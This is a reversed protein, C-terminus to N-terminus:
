KSNYFEVCSEEMDLDVRELIDKVGSERPFWCEEKVTVTKLLM